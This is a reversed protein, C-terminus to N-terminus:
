AGKSRHRNRIKKLPVGLRSRKLVAIPREFILSRFRLSSIRDELQRIQENSEVLRRTLDVVRANAVEFDRLAQEVSLQDMKSSFEQESAVNSTESFAVM